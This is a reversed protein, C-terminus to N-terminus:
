TKRHENLWLLLVAETINEEIVLIGRELAKYKIYEKLKYPMSDVKRNAM